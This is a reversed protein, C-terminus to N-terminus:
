LKRLRYFRSDGTASVNISGADTIPNPAAGVITWVDPGLTPRSELVFGYAAYPWAITVTGGSRTTTLNPLVQVLQIANIAPIETAQPSEPTVTLTLTDGTSVNVNDFQVYNGLAPSAPNTSTMRVYGPSAQYETGTQAKVHYVPFSPGSTNVLEFSQEYTASFSFGVSYVLLNYTGNTIGSLTFGLPNNLGGVYGNFLASDADALIKTGTVYIEFGAAVLSVTTPNGHADALIDSGDFNFDYLNNWNAQPVAGAVDHPSLGSPVTDFKGGAFNVGVYPLVGPQTGGVVTLTAPNSLTDKGAVSVVVTYVAGNYSSDLVPTQYSARNAGVIDVGNSRWQYFIPSQPSSVRVSFKARTHTAATTNAPQQSFTVNGLSPDVWASISGGGLVPLQEPPTAASDPDAAVQVYSDLLIQRHLAQIVYPTGATLTETHAPVNAGNNYFPPVPGSARGPPISSGIGTLGVLDIVTDYSNFVQASVNSSYFLYADDDAVGYLAFTDTNTPTFITTLRTSLNNGDPLHHNQLGKVWFTRDPANNTYSAVNTIGLADNGTGFYVEQLAWGAALKWATFNATTGSPIALGTLASAVNNVTLTYNTGQGQASTALVVVAQNGANVSAGTVTVGGNLTFNTPWVTGPLVPESFTVTVSANGWAGAVSLIKPPSALGGSNPLADLQGGTLAGNTSFIIRDLYFGWERDGISFTQAGAEAVTYITGQAATWQYTTSAPAGVGNASVTFMQSADGPATIIGLANPFFCSNAQFNDGTATIVAADAHWRLYVYYTGAQSFNLDYTVFSNPRGAQAGSLPPFNTTTCYLATGGSATADNTSAWYVRTTNNAYTAGAGAPRNAEFAIFGDNLGQPIVDTLSNPTADLQAGTLLGDTSIVIRDLCFGWERDGITFTQTGAADVTYPTAQAATWQYSASAPAGVGNASVTFMQSADGPTPTLGLTNPFFCSNAQFNDGTATVVAADARWRLYVYYTGAQSFKLSYTVFSNPRGAQAGSLPPFNTTVCHLATGGSAAPDNTSSWYVRTTNNTISAIGIDADFALASGDAPQLVSAAHVPTFRASVLLAAAFLIM